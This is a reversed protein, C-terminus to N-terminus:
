QQQQQQNVASLDWFSRSRSSSAPRQYAAQQWCLGDRALAQLRRFVLSLLPVRSM